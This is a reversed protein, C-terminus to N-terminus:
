CQCMEVHKVDWQTPTVFPFRALFARVSANSKYVFRVHRSVASDFCRLSANSDAPKFRRQLCKVVCVFKRTFSFHSTCTSFANKIRYEYYFYTYVWGFLAWFTKPFCALIAVFSPRFFWKRGCSTAYGSDTCSGTRFYIPFGWRFSM